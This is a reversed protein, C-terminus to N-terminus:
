HLLHLKYSCSVGSTVVFSGSGSIAHLEDCGSGKTINVVAKAIQTVPDIEGSLRMVFSGRFGDVMGTFLEYGRFESAGSPLDCYSLHVEGVGHMESNIYRKACGIGKLKINAPGLVTAFENWNDLSTKGHVIVESM